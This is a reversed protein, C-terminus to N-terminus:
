PRLFNAAETRAFVNYELDLSGVCKPPGSLLLRNRARVSVSRTSSRVRRDRTRRDNAFTRTGDITRGRKGGPFCPRTYGSVFPMGAVVEAYEIGFISLTGLKQLFQLLNM